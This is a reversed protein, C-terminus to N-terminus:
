KSAKLVSPSLYDHGAAKNAKAKLSTLLKILEPDNPPTNLTGWSIVWKAALYLSLLSPGAGACIEVSAEIKLEEAAVGTTAEVFVVTVITGSGAVEAVEGAGASVVGARIELFNGHFIHWNKRQFLTSCICESVVSVLATVAKDEAM